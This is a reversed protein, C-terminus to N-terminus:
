PCRGLSLALGVICISQLIVAASLTIMMRRLLTTENMATAEDVLTDKAEQETLFWGVCKGDGDVMLWGRWPKESDIFGNRTPTRPFHDISGVELGGVCLSREAHGYSDTRWYLRCAGTWFADPEATETM